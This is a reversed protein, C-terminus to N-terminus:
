FVTAQAERDAKRRRHRKVFGRLVLAGGAIAGLISILIMVPLFAPVTAITPGFIIGAIVSGIFQAVFYSVFAGGATWSTAKMALNPPLFRNAFFYSVGIFILAIIPVILM